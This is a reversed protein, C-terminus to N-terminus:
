CPTQQTSSGSSLAPLPKKRAILVLNEASTIRSRKLFPSAVRLLLRSLRSSGRRWLTAWDFCELTEVSQVQFGLRELIVRLSKENWYFYHMNPNQVYFVEHLLRRAGFLRNLLMALRFFRGDGNPVAILLDGQDTLLDKMQAISAVPDRLHELVHWTTVVEYRRSAQTWCEELSARFVRGELSADYGAEGPELGFSDFGLSLGVQVMWGYSAGVDLLTRDNAPGLKELAYRYQRSRFPEFHTRYSGEDITSYFLKGQDSATCNDADVYYLGCRGCQYVPGRLLSFKLKSKGSGCSRCLGRRAYDLSSIGSWM